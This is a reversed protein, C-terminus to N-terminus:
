WRGQQRMCGGPRTNYCPAWTIMCTGNAPSAINRLLCRLLSLRHAGGTQDAYTPDELLLQATPAGYPIVCLPCSHQLHEVDNGCVSLHFLHTHMDISHHGSWVGCLACRLRVRSSRMRLAWRAPEHENHHPLTNGCPLWAPQKVRMRRRQRLLQTGVCVLGCM